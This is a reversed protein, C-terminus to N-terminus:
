FSPVLVDSTFTPSLTVPLNKSLLSVGNVELRRLDMDKLTKVRLRTTILPGQVNLGGTILATAKSDGFIAEDLKFDLPPHKNITGSTIVNGGTQVNHFTKSGTVTQVRFWKMEKSENMELKTEKMVQTANMSHLFINGSPRGDVLAIGSLNQEVILNTFHSHGTLRLKKLSVTTQEGLGIFDAPFDRWNFKGELEANIVHAGNYAHFGTM